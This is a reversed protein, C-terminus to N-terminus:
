GLLDSLSRGLAIHSQAFLYFSRDRIGESVLFWMRSKNLTSCFLPKLALTLFEWLDTIDRPGLTAFFGVGIPLDYNRTPGSKPSTLLVNKWMEFVLLIISYGKFAPTTKGRSPIWNKRTRKAWLLGKIRYRTTKLILRWKRSSWEWNRSSPKWNGLPEKGKSPIGEKENKTSKTWIGTCWAM